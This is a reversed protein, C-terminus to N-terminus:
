YAVDKREANSSARCHIGREMYTCKCQFSLQKRNQNRSEEEERQKEAHYM